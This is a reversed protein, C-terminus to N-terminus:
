RAAARPQCPDKVASAACVAAAASRLASPAESEQRADRLETVLERTIRLHLPRPDQLQLMGIQERARHLRPHLVLVELEIVVHPAARQRRRAVFALQADEHRAQMTRREIKM